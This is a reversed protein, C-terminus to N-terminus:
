GRSSSFHVLHSYRHSHNSSCRASFSRTSATDMSATTLFCISSSRSAASCAAKSSFFSASPSTFISAFSAFSPSFVSAGTIISFGSFALTTSRALSSTFISSALSFTKLLPLSIFSFACFLVLVSLSTTAGDPKFPAAAAFPFPTSGLFSAFLFIPSFLVPLPEFGSALGSTSRLVSPIAKGLSLATMFNSRKNTPCKKLASCTAKVFKLGSGPARAFSSAILIARSISPKFFSDVSDLLNRIICYMLFKVRLTSSRMFTIDPSIGTAFSTTIVGSSM